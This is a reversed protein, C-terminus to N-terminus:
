PLVKINIYDDDAIFILDTSSKPIEFCVFGYEKGLVIDTGKIRPINLNSLFTDNPHRHYINDDGDLIHADNWSFAARGTGVKEITLELLLFMNGGEPVVESTTELIGGGYQVAAITTTLNETTEVSHVEVRWMDSQNINDSPNISTDQATIETYSELTQTKDDPAINQCSLLIFILPLLLLNKKV